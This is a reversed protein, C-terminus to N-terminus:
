GGSLGSRQQALRREVGANYEAANALRLTITSVGAGNPPSIEASGNSLANGISSPNVGASASSQPLYVSAENLSAPKMSSDTPKVSQIGADDGFFKDYVGLAGERTKKGAYESAFGGATVLAMGGVAGIGTSAMAGAAMDAGATVVGAGLATSAAGVIKRATSGETNTFGNITNMIVSLFGLKGLVWKFGKLVYGFPKWLGGAAAELLGSFGGIMSGIKSIGNAIMDIVKELKTVPAALAAMPKAVRDFIRGLFGLKNGLSFIGKFKSFFSNVSRGIKFFSLVKAMGKAAWVFPKGLVPLVTGLHNITLKLISYFSQVGGIVWDTMANFNQWKNVDTTPSMGQAELKGKDKGAAEKMEKVSKELGALVKKENDTKNKKDKLKKIHEEVLKIMKVRRNYSAELRNADDKDKKLKDISAEKAKVEAEVAAIVAPDHTDRAMQLTEASEDLDKKAEDIKKNYKRGGATNEDEKDPNDLNDSMLEIAGPIVSMAGLALTGGIVAKGAWGGTMHANELMGHPGAMGENARRFLSSAKGFFTKEKARGHRGLKRMRMLKAKRAERLKNQTADSPMHTGAWPDINDAAYEAAEGYASKAGTRAAATAAAAEQKIATLRANSETRLARIRAAAEQRIAAAQAPSEAAKRLAEAKISAVAAARSERSNAYDRAHNGINGLKESAKRRFDRYAEPAAAAGKAAITQVRAAGTRFLNWIDHLKNPIDSLYDKADVMWSKLKDFLAGPRIIKQWMMRGSQLAGKLYGPLDHLAVNLRKWMVEMSGKMKYFPVGLTEHAWAKIDGWKRILMFAAVGLLLFKGIGALPNLLKKIGAYATLTSAIYTQTKIDSQLIWDKIMKPGMISNSIVEKASAGKKTRELERKFDDKSMTNDRLMQLLDGSQEATLNEGGVFQKFIEPNLSNNQAQRRMEDWQADIGAETGKLIEMVNMQANVGKSAMDLTRGTSLSVGFKKSLAEARDEADTLGATAAVVENKLKEGAQFAVFGGPKALIASTQKATDMAQNYTMGLKTGVKVAHSVTASLHEVNLTFGDFANAAETLVGTLDSVFIHGDVGMDQLQENVLQGSRAIANMSDTVQRNTKGFQNVFRIYMGQSEEISAGTIRSFAMIEKAADLAVNNRRLMSGSRYLTNVKASLDDVIKAGAEMPMNMMIAAVELKSQVRSYNWTDRSLRYLSHSVKDMSKGVSYYSEIVNNTNDTLKSFVSALSYGAALAVASEKAKDILSRLVGVKKSAEDTNGGFNKIEDSSRRINSASDEFGRNMNEVSENIRDVEDKAEDLQKNAEKLSKEEDASLLPKSQLKEVKKLLTEYQAQAAKLQQANLAAQRDNAGIRAMHNAGSLGMRFDGVMKSTQAGHSLMELMDALLAM